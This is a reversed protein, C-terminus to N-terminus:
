SLLWTAAAPLPSPGARAAVPVAWGDFWPGSSMADVGAATVRHKRGNQLVYVIGNRVERPTKLAQAHYRDGAGGWSATSRGRRVGGRRPREPLVLQIPRGRKKVMPFM